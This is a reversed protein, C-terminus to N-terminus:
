PARPRTMLTCGSAATWGSAGCYRTLLAPTLVMPHRGEVERAARSGRRRRVVGRCRIHGGKDVFDVNAYLGAVAARSRHAEPALLEYRAPTGIAPVAAAAARDEDDGAGVQIRQQVEPELPQERGALTLLALTRQPGALAARIHGQVNGDARDHVLSPVITLEHLDRVHGIVALLDHDGLAPVASPAVRPEGRRGVPRRALRLRAKRTFLLVQPEVELQEGVHPQHPKRIGALRGHDRPDRCRAGLDGVVREGRQNRVEPDHSQRPVPREDNGIHGAEDFTRVFPM